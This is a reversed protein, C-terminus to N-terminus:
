ITIKVKNRTIRCIIGKNEIKRLLHSMASMSMQWKERLEKQDFVAINDDDSRNILDIAVKAETNSAKKALMKAIMAATAKM